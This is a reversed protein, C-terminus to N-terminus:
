LYTELIFNGEYPMSIDKAYKKCLSLTYADFEFGVLKDGFMNGAEIAGSDFCKALYLAQEEDLAHYIYKDKNANVVAYDKDIIETVEGEEVTYFNYLDKYSM